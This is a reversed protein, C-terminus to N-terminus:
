KRKYFDLLENELDDNDCKAITDIKAKKPPPPRIESVKCKQVCFDYVLDKTPDLFNTLEAFIENLKVFLSKLVVSVANFSACYFIKFIIFTSINTSNCM